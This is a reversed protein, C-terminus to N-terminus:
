CSHAVPSGVGVTIEGITDAAHSDDYGDDDVSYTDTDEVLSHGVGGDFVAGDHMGIGAHNATRTTTTWMAEKFAPNMVDGIM